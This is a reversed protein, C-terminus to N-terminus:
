LIHRVLAATYVQAMIVKAGGSICHLYAIGATWGGYDSM